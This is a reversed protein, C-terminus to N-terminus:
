QARLTATIIAVSTGAPSFPEIDLESIPEPPDTEPAQDTPVWESGEAIGADYAVMAFTVEDLWNGADDV